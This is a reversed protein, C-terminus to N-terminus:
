FTLGLNLSMSYSHKTEKTFGFYSDYYNVFDKQQAEIETTRSINDRMVKNNPNEIRSKNM